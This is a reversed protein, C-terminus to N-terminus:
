SSFRTVTEAEVGGERAPAIKRYKVGSV